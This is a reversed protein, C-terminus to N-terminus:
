FPKSPDQFSTDRLAPGITRPRVTGLATVPTTPSRANDCRGFRQLSAGENPCREMTQRAAGDHCRRADRCRGRATTPVRWARTDRLPSWLTTAIPTSISPIEVDRPVLGATFFPPSGCTCTSPWVVFSHLQYHAEYHPKEVYEGPEYQLRM